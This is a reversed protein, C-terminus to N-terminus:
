ESIGYALVRRLGACSAWTSSHQRTDNQANLQYHKVLTTGVANIRRFGSKLLLSTKGGIYIYVVRREHPSKALMVLANMALFRGLESVPLREGLYPALNASHVQRM